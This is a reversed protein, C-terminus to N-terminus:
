RDGQHDAQQKHVRKGTTLHGPEQILQHNGANEGETDDLREKGSCRHSPRLRTPVSRPVQTASNNSWSIM